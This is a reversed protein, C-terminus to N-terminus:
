NEDIQYGIARYGALRREFMRKTMPIRMDAYDYIIVETKRDYLRHLRGAYQSLTGRWSIPMTLFLTDLRPDDFGEGLFKGTALLLRPTGDPVSVFAQQVYNLEKRRMGGRMVFLNKIDSFAKELWLLHEKRETIVVPNRGQALADRVDSVLMRNREENHIILEYITHITAKEQQEEPLTLETNRVIVQHDFPREMAQRKDSVRYRVPGCQMFIIPHHGDKRTITASLGLVFQCKCQRLVSEFSFASLHHCEDVIVMGYGAVLDDVVGRKVLSQISAVDIIGTPKRKGLGVVGIASAPIDLFSELRAKWQNLLQVRHVLILTSTARKALLYIAVVTKGFATSASLVGLDNQLLAAAAKQQEPRLEGHFAFHQPTGRM